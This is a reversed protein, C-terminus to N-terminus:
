RSWLRRRRRLSDDEDDAIQIDPVFTRGADFDGPDIAPYNSAATEAMRGGSPFADASGSSAGGHVQQQQALETADPVVNGDDTGARGKDPRRAQHIGAGGATNAAAEARGNADGVSRRDREQEYDLHKSLEGWKFRNGLAKGTIRFDGYQYTIGTVRGTSAQNFLFRIGLAEGQAIFHSLTLQQAGKSELIDVLLAQLLRKSSPHHTRVSMEIEGKKPAKIAARKSDVVASLGYQKELLRVLAESRQYNNSDSVVTGDFSIRNALLHLHPHGADHHRFVLYQNNTYGMAELYDQAIELLKENTLATSEESSFNLSTHYVYRSLNPRLQRVWEVEQRIDQVSLSSFNTALLEARKEPRSDFIKNMNYRLAGMFGKGIKQSAIM